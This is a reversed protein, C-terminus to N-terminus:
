QPQYETIPHVTDEGDRMFGAWQDKWLEFAVRRFGEPAGLTWGDNRVFFISPEIKHEVLATRPTTAEGEISIVVRTPGMRRLHYAMKKFDLPITQM